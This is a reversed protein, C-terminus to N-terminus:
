PAIVYGPPLTGSLKADMYVATGDGNSTVGDAGMVSVAVDKGNVAKTDPPSGCFLQGNVQVLASGDTTATRGEEPKSVGPELKAPPLVEMVTVCAPGDPEAEPTLGTVNATVTNGETGRTTPMATVGTEMCAPVPPGGTASEGCIVGGSAAATAGRNQDLLLAATAVTVCAPETENRLGPLAVMVTTAQSPLLVVAVTGTTTVMGTDLMTTEGACITADVGPTSAFGSVAATPGAVAVLLPTFHVDLLQITADTSGADPTTVMEPFPAAFSVAVASSSLPAYAETGTVTASATARMLMAGAVDRRATAAPAVACSVAVTNGAPASVGPTTQLLLSWLTAVTLGPVPVTVATPFPTATIFAVAASPLPAVAVVAMVTAM